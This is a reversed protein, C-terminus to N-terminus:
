YQITIFYGFVLLGFWFIIGQAPAEDVPVLNNSKTLLIFVKLRRVLVTSTLTDSDSDLIRSHECGLARSGYYMPTNSRCDQSASADHFYM